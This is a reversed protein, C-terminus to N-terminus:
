PRIFMDTCCAMPRGSPPEVKLKFERWDSCWQISDRPDKLDRKFRQGTFIEDKGKTPNEGTYSLYPTESKEVFILAAAFISIFFILHTFFLYTHWIYSLQLKPKWPSVSIFQEQSNPTSHQVPSRLQSPQLQNPLQRGHPFSLPTSVFGSWIQWGESWEQLVM